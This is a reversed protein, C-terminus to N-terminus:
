CNSPPGVAKASDASLAKVPLFTLISCPVTSNPSYNLKTLTLRRDPTQFGKNSLKILSFVLSCARPKIYVSM